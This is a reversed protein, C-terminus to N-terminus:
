FGHGKMASLANMLQVGHLQDLTGVGITVNMFNDILNASGGVFVNQSIQGPNESVMQRVVGAGQADNLVLGLQGAGLVFQITDGDPAVDTRSATISDGVGGQTVSSLPVVQVAMANKVQNDTGAIVNSQVAGSVSNLGALGNPAYTVSTTSSGGPSSPSPAGDRVWGVTIQPTGPQGNAFSLDVAMRAATVVGDGTQWLTELTIGFYSISDPAIFKGRISSLEEDSVRASALLGSEVPSAAASSGMLLVAHAISLAAKWGIRRGVRRVTKPQPRMAFERM